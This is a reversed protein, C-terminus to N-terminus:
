MTDACDRQIIAFNKAAPASFGRARMAGAVADVRTPCTWVSSPQDPPEPAPSASAPSAVIIPIAAIMAAFGTVGTRHTRTSM